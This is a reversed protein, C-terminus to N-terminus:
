AGGARSGDDAHDAEEGETETEDRLTAPVLWMAAVLLLLLVVVILAVIALVAGAAM